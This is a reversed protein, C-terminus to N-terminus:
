VERKVLNEKLFRKYYGEISLLPVTNFPVNLDFDIDLFKCIEIYLYVNMYGENKELFSYEKVPLCFRKSMTRKSINLFKRKEEITGKYM